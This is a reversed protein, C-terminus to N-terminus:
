DKMLLVQPLSLASFDFGQRKRRLPVILELSRKIVMKSIFHFKLSGIRPVGIPVKPVRHSGEFDWVFARM